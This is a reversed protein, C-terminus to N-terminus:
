HDVRAHLVVKISLCLGKDRMFWLCFDFKVLFLHLVSGVLLILSHRITHLFILFLLEVRLTQKPKLKFVVRLLNLLGKLFTFSAVRRVLRKKVFLLVNLRRELKNHPRRFWTMVIVHLTECVGWKNNVPLVNHFNDVRRWGYRRRLLNHARDAEFREALHDAWSHCLAAM